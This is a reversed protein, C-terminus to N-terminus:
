RNGTIVFGEVDDEGIGVASSVMHTDLDDDSVVDEEEGSMYENIPSSNNISDLDSSIGNTDNGFIATLENDEEWSEVDSTAELDDSDIGDRQIKTRRSAIGFDEDPIELQSDSMVSDDDPILSAETLATTVSDMDDDSHSREDITPMTSENDLNFQSVPMGTDDQSGEEISSMHQHRATRGHGNRNSRRNRSSHYKKSYYERKAQRLNYAEEAKTRFEAMLEKDLNTVNKFQQSLGDRPKTDRNFYAFVALMHMTRTRDLMLPQRIKGLPRAYMTKMKERRQNIMIQREENRQKKTKFLNDIKDQCKQYRRIVYRLQRLASAMNKYQSYTAHIGAQISALKSSTYESDSQHLWRVYLPVLYDMVLVAMAATQPQNNSVHNMLWNYLLCSLTKQEQSVPSKPAIIAAMVTDLVRFVEAGRDSSLSTATGSLRDVGPEWFEADLEDTSHSQLHKRAERSVDLYESTLSSKHVNTLNRMTQIMSMAPTLECRKIVSTTSRPKRSSASYSNSFNHCAKASESMNSASVHHIITNKNVPPTATMTTAM